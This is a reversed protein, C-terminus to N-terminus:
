FDFWFERWRCSFPDLKMAGIIKTEGALFREKCGSFTFQLSSMEFDHRRVLSLAALPITRSAGQTLTCDCRRGTSTCRYVVDSAWFRLWHKFSPVQRKISTSSLIEGISIETKNSAWTLSPQRWQRQLVSRYMFFRCSVPEFHITPLCVLRSAWPLQKTETVTAHLSTSM